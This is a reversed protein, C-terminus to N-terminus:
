AGLAHERVLRNFREPNELFAVHGGGQDADFIELRAGSIHSAIWEQTAVKIISARGGIVLTPLTITRIAARWDGCMLDLLMSAAKPRALVLGEEMLLAVDCAGLSPTHMMGFFSKSFGDGDPGMLAGHFRELMGVDLTYPEDAYISASPLLWPAEDVFVFRALRDAGFLEWYSWAVACGMSWGLMTVARLDLGLVLEHVDKSLRAIRYGHESQQSAGHGRFDLAIVRFQERLGAIQYKFVASSQSWGHLLLIVPRAGGTDSYALSVGDNTQFTPM